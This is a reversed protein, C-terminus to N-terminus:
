FCAICVIFL